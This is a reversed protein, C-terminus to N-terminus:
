KANANKLGYVISNKSYGSSSFTILSLRNNSQTGDENQSFIADVFENAAKKANSLKSNKDMSGSLDFVLIVDVGKKVPVGTVGLEVKAVGTGNFDTSTAGKNIKVSGENPYQPYEGGDITDDPYLKDDAAVVKKYLRVTSSSDSATFGKSSSYSLYYDEYSITYNGNNNSVNLTRYNNRSSLNINYSNWGSKLRLYYNGNKVTYGNNSSTFTWLSAGNANTVKNESVTVVTSAIKGNNNTLANASDAAVILYEAGSDVGDTDLVYEYTTTTEALTSIGEETLTTAVEETTDEAVEESDETAVNDSDAVVEEEVGETTNTTAEDNNVESVKVEYYTIAENANSDFLWKEENYSLYNTTTENEGEVAYSINNEGFKVIVGNEDVLNLESDLYKGEESLLHNEEDVTWIMSSDVNSIAEDTVEVSKGVVKNENNSLATKNDYVIVYKEGVKVENTKEYTLEQVNAKENGDKEEALVNSPLFGTVMMASMVMALLKKTSKKM